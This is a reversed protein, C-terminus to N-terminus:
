TPRWRPISGKEVRAADAALATQQRLSCVAVEDNYVIQNEPFEPRALAEAAPVRRHLRREACAAVSGGAAQLPKRRATRSEPRSAGETGGGDRREEGEAKESSRAPWRGARAALQSALRAGPGLIQGVLISLQEERSPWKSVEAVQEATLKQGDMVGGRAEFPEYAQRRALRTVEKALSVIDEGGWCIAAPRHRRRVDAALPTGAM